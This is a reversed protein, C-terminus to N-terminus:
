ARLRAGAQASVDRVIPRFIEIDSSSVFDHTARAIAEWVEVVRPYDEAHVPFIGHECAHDTGRPSEPEDPVEM